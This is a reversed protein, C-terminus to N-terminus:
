MVVPANGRFRLDTDSAGAIGDAWYIPAPLTRQHLGLGPSLTQGAVISAIDAHSLELRNWSEEWAVKAIAPLDRASRPPAPALFMTTSEPVRVAFPASLMLRGGGARYAMPNGRKRYEVLTVNSGLAQFVVHPLEREFLRGDRLVLVPDGGAQVSRLHSAVALLMPRLTAPLATEDRRQRGLWVGALAGM